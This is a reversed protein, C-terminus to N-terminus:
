LGSLQVATVGGYPNALKSYLLPISMLSSMKYRGSFM